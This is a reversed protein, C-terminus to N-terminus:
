RVRRLESRRLVIKAEGGIITNRRGFIQSIQKYVYSQCRMCVLRKAVERATRVTALGAGYQLGCILESTFYGTFSEGDFYLSRTFGAIDNM